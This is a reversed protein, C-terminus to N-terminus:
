KTPRAGGMEMVGAGDADAGDINTAQLVALESCRCATDDATLLPARDRIGLLGALRPATLGIRVARWM